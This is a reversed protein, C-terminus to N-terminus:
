KQPLILKDPYAPRGESGTTVLHMQYLRRAVHDAANVIRYTTDAHPVALLDPVRKRRHQLIGEVTRIGVDSFFGDILVRELGDLNDFAMILESIVVARVVRRDERKLSTLSSREILVYRFDRGGLADLIDGTKKKRLSSSQEVDRIDTSYVGVHFELSGGNNSEDIGLYGSM